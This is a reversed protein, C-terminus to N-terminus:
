CASHPQRMPEPAGRRHGPTGFPVPVSGGGEPPSQLGRAPLCHRSPGGARHLGSCDSEAGGHCPLASALEATQESPAEPLLPRLRHRLSGQAPGAGLGEPAHGDAPGDAPKSSALAWPQGEDTSWGWGHDERGAETRRM